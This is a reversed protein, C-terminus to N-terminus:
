WLRMSPMYSPVRSWGYLETGHLNISMFLQVVKPLVHGLDTMRPDVSLGM